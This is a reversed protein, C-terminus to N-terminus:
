PVGAALFFAAVEPVLRASLTAVERHRRDVVEGVDPVRHAQLHVLDAQLDLAGVVLHARPALLLDVVLEVGQEVGAVVHHLELVDDLVGGPLEALRHGEHGLRDKAVVARAHM